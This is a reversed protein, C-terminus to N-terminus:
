TSIALTARFERMLDTEFSPQEPLTMWRPRTVFAERTAAELDDPPPEIEDRGGEGAAWLL